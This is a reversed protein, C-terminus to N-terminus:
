HGTKPAAQAGADAPPPGGLKIELAARMRDTIEPPLMHRAKPVTVPVAITETPIKRVSSAPMEGGAALALGPLLAFAAALRIM